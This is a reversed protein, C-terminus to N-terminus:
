FIIPSVVAHGTLGAVPIVNGASVFPIFSVGLIGSVSFNVNQEEVLYIRPHGFNSSRTHSTPKLHKSTERKPPFM